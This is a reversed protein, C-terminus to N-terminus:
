KNIRTLLIEAAVSDLPKITKYQELAAERNGISLYSNALSMLAPVSDSKLNVAQKFYDVADNFKKAYSSAMGLDFYTEFDAPKLSAIKRFIEIARESQGSMTLAKGLNRLSNVDDQKLSVAKDFATAAEAFKGMNMYAAGLMNQANVDEPKLGAYKVGAELAM